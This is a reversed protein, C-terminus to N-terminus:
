RGVPGAAPGAVPEGAPGAVPGVGPEAAPEVVGTRVQGAYGRMAADDAATAPRNGYWIGSFIESAGALPVAIAPRAQGAIAALEIVTWGPRYDFVKRELLERVIARLRERVAEKYRGQGALDDASLVLTAAPLDPLQDAPLDAAPEAPRRRRWWRLRWRLRWRAWRLRLGSFGLRWGGFRWWRRRAGSRGARLRGGGRRGRGPLWDPWFYWLFSGITTLLLLGAGLVPVGGPVLDGIVAVAEHWARM